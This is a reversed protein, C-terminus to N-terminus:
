IFLYIFLYNILEFERLLSEFLELGVDESLETFFCYIYLYVTADPAYLLNIIIYLYNATLFYKHETLM